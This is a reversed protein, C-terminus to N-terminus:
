NSVEIYKGPGDWKFIKLPEGLAKRLPCASFDDRTLVNFDKYVYEYRYNDSGLEGSTYDDYRMKIIYLYFLNPNDAYDVYGKRLVEPSYICNEFAIRIADYHILDFPDCALYKDINGDYLLKYSSERFGDDIFRLVDSETDILWVGSDLDDEPDEMNPLSEIRETLGDTPKPLEDYVYLCGDENFGLDSIPKDYQIKYTDINDERGGYYRVVSEKSALWLCYKANPYTQKIIDVCVDVLNQKEEESSDEFNDLINEIFYGQEDRHAFTNNLTDPIDINGLEVIEFEIVDRLDRVGSGYTEETRYGVSQNSAEVIFRM